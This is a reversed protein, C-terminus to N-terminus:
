WNNSEMAKNVADLSHSNQPFKNEMPLNRARMQPDYSSTSKKVKKSKNLAGVAIGVVIGIPLGKGEEKKDDDDDLEEEEKEADDEIKFELQVAANEDDEIDIGDKGTFIKRDNSILIGYVKEKYNLWKYENMGFTAKQESEIEGDIQLPINSVDEPPYIIESAYNHIKKKIKLNLKILIQQQDAKQYKLTFPSQTSTRKLSKLNNKNFKHKIVKQEQDINEQTKDKFEFIKVNLYGPIMRKGEIHFILKGNPNSVNVIVQASKLIGLIRWWPELPKQQEIIQAQTRSNFLEFNMPIGELDNENSYTDSYNGKVYEGLIRYQCFDVIKAMAVYLSQGYKDASNNYIKMGRLDILKSNPDYDGSGGLFLGGGFGTQSYSISSNTSNLAKCEHINADKIVFSCQTSFDILVYIGGGNGNSKCQFFECSKDLILQGGSSINSFIGGGDRNSICNQFSAKNIEVIANDQIDAYLGGGYQTHCQKCELKGTINVVSESGNALLYQGGGYGRNSGTSLCNDITIKGIITMQAGSDFESYFGGGFQSCNCNNFSLDNITTQGAYTCQIDLGGGYDDSKCGDFQMNGLLKIDYNPGYTTIYCGGGVLSCSCDKFLGSGTMIFKGLDSLNIYMGGGYFGSCEEFSIQDELILQSNNGRISACLGGGQGGQAFSIKCKTFSCSGSITLKGGTTLQVQVAGGYSPAQKYTYLVEMIQLQANILRQM